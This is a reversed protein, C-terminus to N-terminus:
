PTPQYAARIQEMRARNVGADSYGLRSASRFHILGATEDFYFEVDDIFRWTASRAEAHIYTPENTILTIRPLSELTALIAAHAVATEGGYPMPAIGHLDNTAFTSVCNPSDPCPTLRGNTVGLSDPRPSMRVVLWRFVFFAVLSLLLLSFLLKIIKPM